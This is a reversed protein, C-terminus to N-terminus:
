GLIGGTIGYIMGTIYSAKESILFHILQAVEEPNGMRKMPIGSEFKKVVESPTNKFFGTHIVGPSVANVRIGEDILEKALGRTFGEIAAKSTAYPVAGPGGGNQAAISTITVISGAKQKLMYPIVERCTMFVSNLNLDMMNHWLLNSMEGIKAREIIGGSNAILIDIRGYADIAKQVMSKVQEDKTIDAQVLLARQGTKEVEKKTREAGELSHCYNVVIDAGNKALEIATAQGIGSSAGTILAVKGKLEM